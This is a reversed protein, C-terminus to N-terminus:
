RAGRGRVVVIVTQLMIWMDYAFSRNRIYELDKDLMFACGTDKRGSIQWLGTLGPVVRLRLPARVDTIPRSIPRPGVLSMQGLLVNVLQPTEDLSTARLFKGVRTQRPDEKIRILSGSPEENLHMVDALRQEADAVMTRFKFITFPVGDLGPRQQRFIIPGKSTLKVCVAIVCWFPLCVMIGALAATLDFLRKATTYGLRSQPFAGQASQTTDGPPTPSPQRWAQQVPRVVDEPM